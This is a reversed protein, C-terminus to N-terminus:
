LCLDKAKSNMIVTVVTISVPCKKLWNIKFFTIPMFERRHLTDVIVAITKKQPVAVSTPDKKKEVCRGTGFKQQTRSSEHYM